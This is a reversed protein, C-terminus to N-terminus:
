LSNLFANLDQVGIVNPFIKQLNSTVGYLIKSGVYLNNNILSISVITINANTPIHTAYFEKEPASATLRVVSRVNNFVAFVLTNKNTFNLPLVVNLNTTGQTTDMLYNAGFWQMHPSQLRYGTQHIGNILTDWNSVTGANDPQWNIGSINASLGGLFNIGSYYEMGNVADDDMWQITIPKNPAISIPQNNAFCSVFFDSACVLPHQNSTTSLLYRIFDGRKKVQILQLQVSDSVINLPNNQYTCANSIIKIQIDDKIWFATDNNPKFTHTYATNLGIKSQFSDSLSSNISDNTWTTDNFQMGQYATFEDSFDKKCGVLILNTIIIYFFLKKM